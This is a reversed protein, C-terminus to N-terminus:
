RSVYGREIRRHIEGHLDRTGAYFASAALWRARDNIDRFGPQENGAPIVACNADGPSTVLSTEEVYICPVVEDRLKGGTHQATSLLLRAVTALGLSETARPVAAGFDFSPQLM